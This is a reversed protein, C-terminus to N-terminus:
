YKTRMRFCFHSVPPPAAGPPPPPASGVPPPPPPSGAAGVYNQYVSPLGPPAGMNQQGPYGASQDGYGPYSAYGGYAQQAGPPATQPQQWPAAGGSPPGGYGGSKQGYGYNDNGRGANAWPAPASSGGERPHDERGRNQWPAPAGTPGREWPAPGRDGHGANDYGSPGAEIRHAGQGNGVPGGGELEQMLQQFHNSRTKSLSSFSVAYERDVADGTGAAPAGPGPGPGANRWESGRSRDPCDKAMHGANGCIRCIIGSTFNRKEPCDYKRHGIEGGLITLKIRLNPFEFKCNQCAQNEDDRLTGNLAALQRLQNRKL